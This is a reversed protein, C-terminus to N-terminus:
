ESAGDGLCRYLFTVIEGRNCQKEPSFTTASTGVTVGNGLAWQMSLYYYMVADYYYSDSAVDEFPCPDSGPDPMDMARWLFTVIQGRTCTAEPSFTTASTGLTIGNEVAWQVADFYYTNSGVDTFFGTKEEPTPCGFARWLFTVAQARTCNDKPSFTTPTTGLTIGNVMAWVVPDYYFQAKDVDLFFSGICLETVADGANNVVYDYSYNKAPNEPDEYSGTEIRAGVPQIIALPNSLTLKGKYCLASRDSETKLSVISNGSIALDWADIGYATTNVGIYSGIINTDNENNIYIGGNAGNVTIRTSEATLAGDHLYIGTDKCNIVFQGGKISLNGDAVYVGDAEGACNVQSNASLLGGKDVYIGTGKSTLYLRSNTLNLTGHTYLADVRTNCTVNAGSMSVSGSGAVPTRGDYRVYAYIGYDADLELSGRGSVTLSGRVAIGDGIKGTNKLTSKGVLNLTFDAESYIVASDKEEATDYYVYGAGSYSYDSLTLVNATGPEWYAYGGETPKQASAAAAGNALYQGKTLKVGGVYITDNSITNEAFSVAASRVPTSDAALAAAPLLTLLMALCLLVSLLRKKM